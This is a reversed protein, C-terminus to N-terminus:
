MNKKPTFKVQYCGCYTPFALDFNFNYRASFTKNIYESKSNVSTLM